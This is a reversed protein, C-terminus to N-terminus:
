RVARELLLETREGVTLGTDPVRENNHGDFGSDFMSSNVSELPQAVPDSSGGTMSSSMEIWGIQSSSSSGCVLTYLRHTARRLSLRARFADLARHLVPEGFLEDLLHDLVLDVFLM